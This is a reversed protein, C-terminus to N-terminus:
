LSRMESGISEAKRMIEVFKYGLNKWEYQSFDDLTMRNYGMGSREVYEDYVFRIAREIDCLTNIAYYVGPFGKLFEETPDYGSASQKLYLIPRGSALYMYVKGPIQIGGTNGVIVLVGASSIIDVSLKYNVSGNFNVFEWGKNRAEVEFSQSHPGVIEVRFTVEACKAVAELFPLLNRGSKYAVGVYTFSLPALVNKSGDSSFENTCFGMPIPVTPVRPFMKNYIVKTAGTTVIIAKAHKLCKKEILLNMIKKPWFTAPWIPNLAWPDGLEAVFPINLKISLTSAARHAEYSGSASVIVDPKINMDLVLKIVGSRWGLYLDPVLLLNAAYNILKLLYDTHRIKGLKEQLRFFWGYQVIHIPFEYGIIEILSEDKRSPPATIGIVEYGSEILSRIFFSNRITQSEAHPPLATSIFLVTEKM